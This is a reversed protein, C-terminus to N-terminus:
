GATQANGGSVGHARHCVSPYKGAFEAKRAPCGGRAADARRRLLLNRHRSGLRGVDSETHCYRLRCRHLEM